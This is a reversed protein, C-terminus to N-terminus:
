PRNRSAITTVIQYFDVPSGPGIVIQPNQLKTFALCVQIIPTGIANSVPNGLYDYEAFINSHYINNTMLFNATVLKFDGYSSGTYNTRYLNSTPPDYYYLVWPINTGTNTTGLYIKLANGVQWSNTAANTFGALSGNGVYNSAGSRIDTMLKGLAQGADDSASLWIQQRYAMSLGYLSCMIMSGALIVLTTMVVMAEVLTFGSRRGSREANAFTMKM